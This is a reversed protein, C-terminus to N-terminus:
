PKYTRTIAFAMDGEGVVMDTRVHKLGGTRPDIELADVGSLDLTTASPEVDADLGAAGAKVPKPADQAFLLNPPVVMATAMALCLGKTFISQISRPRM